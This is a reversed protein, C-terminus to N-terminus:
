YWGFNDIAKGMLYVNYPPTDAPTECGAMPMFGRPAKKGAEIREKACSM